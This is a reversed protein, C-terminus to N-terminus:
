PENNQETSKNRNETTQKYKYLMAMPNLQQQAARYGPALFKILDVLTGNLEHVYIWHQIMYPPLNYYTIHNHAM